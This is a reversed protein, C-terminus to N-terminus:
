HLILKGLKNLKSNQLDDIVAYVGLFYYLIQYHILKFFHLLFQLM